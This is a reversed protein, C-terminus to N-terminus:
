AKKHKKADVQALIKMCVCLMLLLYTVPGSSTYVTDLRTLADNLGAIQSATATFHNIFEHSAYNKKKKKKKKQKRRGM